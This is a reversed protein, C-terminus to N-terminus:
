RLERTCARTVELLMADAFTSEYLDILYMDPDKTWDIGLERYVDAATNGDAWEGSLDSWPLTDLVAPDGDEIGQLITRAHGAPDRYNNTLTDQIWWAAANKGHERGLGKAKNTYTAAM